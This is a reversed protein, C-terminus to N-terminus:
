HEDIPRRQTSLKEGCHLCKERHEENATRCTNCVITKPKKSNPVVAELLALIRKNVQNMEVIENRIKFVFFPLLFMMVGAVAAVIWLVAGVGLLGEM